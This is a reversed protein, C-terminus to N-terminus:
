PRPLAAPAIEALVEDASAADNRVPDSGPDTVTMRFRASDVLRRGEEAMVHVIRGAPTAFRLGPGEATAHPVFGAERLRRLDTADAIAATAARATPLDRRVGRRRVTLFNDAPGAPAGAPRLIEAQRVLAAPDNRAVRAIDAGVPAPEGRVARALGAVAARLPGVPRPPPAHRPAGAPAAIRPANAPGADLRGLDVRGDALRYTQVGGGWRYIYVGEVPAGGARTDRVMLFSEEETVLLAIEPHYGPFAVPFELEDAEIRNGNEAIWAAMRDLDRRPSPGNQGEFNALLTISALPDLAGREHEKREHDLFCPFCRFTSRGLARIANVMYGPVQRLTLWRIEDDVFAPLRTAGAAEIQGNDGDVLAPMRQIVAPLTTPGAAGETAVFDDDRRGFDEIQDVHRAEIMDPADVHGAIRAATADDIEDRVGHAEAHRLAHGMAEGIRQSTEEDFNLDGLGQAAEDDTALRGRVTAGRPPEAGMQEHGPEEARQEAKAPEALEGKSTPMEIAIEPAVVHEREITPKVTEDPKPAQTARKPEPM